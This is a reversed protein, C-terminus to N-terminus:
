YWTVCIQKEQLKAHFNCYIINFKFYRTFWTKTLIFYCDENLTDVYSGSYWAQFVNNYTVDSFNIFKFHRHMYNGTVDTEVHNFSWIYFVAQILMDSFCLYWYVHCYTTQMICLDCTNIQSQHREVKNCTEASSLSHM